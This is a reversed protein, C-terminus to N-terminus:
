DIKQNKATAAQMQKLRGRRLCRGLSWGPMQRFGLRVLNMRGPQIVQLRQLRLADRNQALRHRLERPRHHQIRDAFIRRHHQSQRLLGKIRPLNRERQQMHIGAILEGLHNPEAVLVRALDAGVQDHMAVLLRNCVAGIGIRQARLVAAPQQLRAAQQIRQFFAAEVRRKAPRPAVFLLAPGLLADVREAVGRALPVRLVLPRLKHLRYLERRRLPSLM